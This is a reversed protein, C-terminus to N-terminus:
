SSWPIKWLSKTKLFQPGQGVEPAELLLQLTQLQETFFSGLSLEPLFSPDRLWLFVM